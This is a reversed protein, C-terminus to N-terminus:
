KIQLDHESLTRWQGMQLATRLRGKGLHRRASFSALPIFGYFFCKKSSGLKFIILIIAVATANKGFPLIRPEVIIGLFIEDSIHLSGIQM